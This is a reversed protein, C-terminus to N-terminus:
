EFEMGDTAAHRDFGADVVFDLAADFRRPGDARWGPFDTMLFGLTADRGLAGHTWRIRGTSLRAGIYASKSGYLYGEAVSCLISAPNQVREFGAAIRYPADPYPANWTQKLWAEAPWAIGAGAAAPEALSRYGLPDGSEPHYSWITTEGELRREITARGDRDLVAWGDDTPHICLDVGPADVVATAVPAEDGRRTYVEFSSVLGFPTLVVSGPEALHKRITWGARRVARFVEPRANRLVEGNGGLGHDSLVVVYLPEEIRDRVRPILRDLAEFTTGFADPGRLHGTADTSNVYVFFSRQRSAVFADLARRLERVNFELPWAYVKSKSFFGRLQWDFFHHWDFRINGYSILGGGRIEDRRRDYFKAEYGPPDDLEFRSLIATLAISTSSPFTSVLPVPGELDTLLEADAEAGALGLVSDYPVADLVIVLLRADPEIGAPSGSTSPASSSTAPAPPLGHACAGAALGVAIASAALLAAGGRRCREAARM